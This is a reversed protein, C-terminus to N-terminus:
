KPAEPKAPEAFVTLWLQDTSGILLESYGQPVGNNESGTTMIHRVPYETETVPDRLVLQLPQSAPKAGSEAAIKMTVDGAKEAVEVVPATVGDPLNKAVLQLKSKFGNTRKVAVKMEASKGAQVSISHAVVTATVSPAAEAIESM